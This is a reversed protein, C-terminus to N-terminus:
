SKKKLKKIIKEDYSPQVEEGPQLVLFDEENWNGNLFDALLSDSGEYTLYEWGKEKAIAKSMEEGYTNCIGPWSIYTMYHYNQLMAREIEMLYEVTDEDEYQEM